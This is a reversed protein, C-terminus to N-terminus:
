VRIKASYVDLACELIASDIAPWSMFSSWMCMRPLQAQILDVTCQFPLPFCLTVQGSFTVQKKLLVVFNQTNEAPIHGM